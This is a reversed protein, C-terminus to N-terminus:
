KNFYQGFHSMRKIHSVGKACCKWRKWNILRRTGIHVSGYLVLPLSLLYNRKQEDADSNVEILKYVVTPGNVM